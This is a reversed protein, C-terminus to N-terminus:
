RRRGTLGQAQATAADNAAQALIANLEVVQKNLALLTIRVMDEFPADVAMKAEITKFPEVGLLNKRMGLEAADKDKAVVLFTPKGDIYLIFNMMKQM